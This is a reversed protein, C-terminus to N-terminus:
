RVKTTEVDQMLEAIKNPLSEIYKRQEDVDEVCTTKVRLVKDIEQFKASVAAMMKKPVRSCLAKLLGVLKEKKKILLERVQVNGLNHLIQYIRPFQM